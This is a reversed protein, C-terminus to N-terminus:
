STKKLAGAWDFIIGMTSSRDRNATLYADACQDPAFVHSTLGELPFRGSTALSYFLEVITADHWETTNHGDHVGIISLGRRLVDPTLAQQAPTGTDGLIVVRGRDAALTLAASFVAANGTTDIVVRPLKGKAAALVAERAETIPATIVVTAGGAQALPMRSKATDVALIPTVGAARAWRISMQGIPGAGIILATDGLRYEAARAGLFAIKALAFWVAQEFSLGDPIPFCDVEKVVAHSRHAQRFAVRDGVKRSTVGEGLAEVTGVSTYGPYFPYKVWNDWHTGPDFLRNYVINETGTSMLSLETRVLVQGAEPKGPDFEEILVQQKAPFVLRRPKAPVSTTM